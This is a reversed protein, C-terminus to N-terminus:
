NWEPILHEGDEDGDLEWNTTEAGCKLCRALTADRYPTQYGAGYTYVEVTETEYDDHDCSESECDECEGDESLTGAAVLAGCTLCEDCICDRTYDDCRECRLFSDNTITNTM